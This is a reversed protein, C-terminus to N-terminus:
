LKLNLHSVGEVRAGEILWEGGVLTSKGEGKRSIRKSRPSTM